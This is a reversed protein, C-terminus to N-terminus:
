IIIVGTGNNMMFSTCGSNMCYKKNEYTIIGNTTTITNNVTLNQSITVNTFNANGTVFLGTFNAVTGNEVKTLLSTTLSTNLNTINLQLNTILSGKTLNDSQLISINSALSNDKATLSSNLNTVNTQVSNVNNQVNSISTTLSSNLNTVNTQVSSIFPMYDIVYIPINQLYSWNLNGFLNVGRVDTTSTINNFTVNSTINVSQDASFGGAGGTQDTGCYLEGNSSNAKVDCSTQALSTISINDGFRVKGRNTYIAYSQNIAQGNTTTNMDDVYLGYANIVKVSTDDTLTLGSIQMGYYNTINTMFGYLLARYAYVNTINLSKTQTAGYPSIDAVYGQVRSIDRNRTAEELVILNYVGYYSGNTKTDGSDIYGTMIDLGGVATSTNTENVLTYIGGGILGQTKNSTSKISFGKYPSSGMYNGIKTDFTSTWYIEAKLTLNSANIANFTVNATINVNQNASFGGGAGGTADSCFDGDSGGTINACNIMGTINVAVVQDLNTLNRILSENLAKCIQQSGNPMSTWINGAPCETAYTVTDNWKSNIYTENLFIALSSNYLGPTSTSNFGVNKTNIQNTLSTNLNTINTQLNTILSTKTANDAVLATINSQLINDRATLSSNLNSLNTALSDGNGKSYYSSNGYSSNIFDNNNTLNSTLTPVRSSDLKTGILNTLSTNLNTINTQLQSGKTDVYGTDNWKSNVYTENLYITLSNNYLGPEIADNFGGGAGGTADNCFDSDAGGAQVINACSINANSINGLSNKRVITNNDLGSIQSTLSTNLNSINTQTSAINSEANSIRTTLSSNLNTINTQLSSQGSQLTSIQNSQTTNDAQLANDKATLSSNLNTINSQLSSTQSYLSVNNSVLQNLKTWISTNDSSYLSLLLYRLDFYTSNIAITGTSTITGGTLEPATITISSVGGGPGGSGPLLESGNYYYYSYAYFRTANITTANNIGYRGRGDQDGVWYTTLAYTNHSM